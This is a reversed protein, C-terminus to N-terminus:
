IKLTSDVGKPREASFWNQPLQSDDLIAEDEFPILLELGQGLDTSVLFPNQTWFYSWVVFLWPRNKETIKHRPAQTAGGEILETPLFSNSLPFFFSHLLWQFSLICLSRLTRLVWGGELCCFAVWRLLRTGLAPDPCSHSTWWTLTRTFMLLPSHADRNDGPLLEQRSM